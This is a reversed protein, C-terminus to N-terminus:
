ANLAHDAVDASRVRVNRLHHTQWYRRPVSERAKLASLAVYLQRVDSDDKGYRAELDQIIRNLNDTKRSMSNVESLNM